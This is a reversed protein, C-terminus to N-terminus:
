LLLPLIGIALRILCHLLRDDFGIEIKGGGIRNGDEVEVGELNAEVEVEEEEVEIRLGNM